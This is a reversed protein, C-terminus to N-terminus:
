PATEGILHRIVVLLRSTGRPYAAIPHVRTLEEAALLLSRFDTEVPEPGDLDFDAPMLHLVRSTACDAAHAYGAFVSLPQADARAWATDAAHGLLRAVTALTDLAEVHAAEPTTM